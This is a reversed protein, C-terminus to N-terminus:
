IPSPAAAPGAHRSDVHVTVRIERDLAALVKM